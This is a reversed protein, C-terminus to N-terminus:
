SGVRAAAIYSIDDRLMPSSKRCFGILSTGARCENWCSVTCRSNAGINFYSNGQLRLQEIGEAYGQLRMRCM